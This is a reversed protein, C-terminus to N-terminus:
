ETRRFAVDPALSSHKPRRGSYYGADVTRFVMVSESQPDFLRFITIYKARLRIWARRGPQPMEVM